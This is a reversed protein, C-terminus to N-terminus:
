LFLFSTPSSFGSLVGSELGDRGRSKNHFIGIFVILPASSICIEKKLQPGQTSIKCEKDQSPLWCWSQCWLEKCCLHSDSWLAKEQWQSVSNMFYLKSNRKKKKLCAFQIVQLLFVASGSGSGLCSFSLFCTLM